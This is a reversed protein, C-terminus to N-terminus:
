VVSAGSGVVTSAVSGGAHLVDGTASALGGLLQPSRKAFEGTVDEAVEEVIDEGDDFLDGLIQRKNKKYEDYDSGYGSLSSLVDGPISLVSDAVDKGADIGAGIIDGLIQPQPSRKSKKYEDYDSEYGSLSSLVDGPISLVSDAVDKGADIGAGIISGLIQPQASRKSKKYEEKDYEYSGVDLIDGVLDSGAEIIDSIIQAERKEKYGFIGEAVGAAVDAAGSAVGGIISSGADVLPSAISGAADALDYGADLLGGLLQPQAERKEKYGFVGSAVGGIVDATGSALGGVISSGADVLPSAISGAADAL